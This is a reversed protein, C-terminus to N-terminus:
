DKGYVIDRMHDHSIRFTEALMMILDDNKKIIVPGSLPIEPTTAPDITISAEGGMHATHLSERQKIFWSRLWQDRAKNSLMGGAAMIGMIRVQQDLVDAITLM